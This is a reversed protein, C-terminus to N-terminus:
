RIGMTLIHGPETEIVQPRGIGRRIQGVLQGDGDKIVLRTFPKLAVHRKVGDVIVEFRQTRRGLLTIAILSAILLLTGAVLAFVPTLPYQIRVLLPVRVSSARVTDPPTFIESIPDGPFLDRMDATFAESIALQQRTLGMEVTLPLLVRKGMASLAPLSWPSPVQAMPLSFSVEVSEKAAPQLDTVVSPTVRVATRGEPGQLAADIAATKIAYPYFLNQLSAQMTVTPVLNAADVDMVVTRQDAALSVRIERANRVREPVIRLADQHIPKLRAPPQTLVQSLAGAATIRDLAEAAPAGYALAYVMLGRAAYLKGQVPMRLPFVVTKEISPELHLMRYFDRNRDATQADNNPSNRNNTFIWIVGPAGEFPGTITKTIAERFDTDALATGTGKRAVTLASLHTPLAAGGQSQGLLLPSINTGSSQNFALTFVRDGPAAVAAAVAGVLPKFQSTPDSYFPEMWGSNQVLFAHQIAIAQATSSLCALLAFASAPLANLFRNM